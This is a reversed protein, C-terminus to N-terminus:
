SRDRLDRVSAHIGGGRRAIEMYDLGAARMEQEDARPRGFVAHTHSDVFGPALLGGRCDVPQADPHARLLDDQPGVVHVLGDRVVVAHHARPGADAMAVGRRPGVAGACTVVQSANVFILESM